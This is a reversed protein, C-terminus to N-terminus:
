SARAQPRGAGVDVEGGGQLVRVIGDRFDKRTWSQTIFHFALYRLKATMSNMLVAEQFTSQPLGVIGDTLSAIYHDLIIRTWGGGPDKGRSCRWSGLGSNKSCVQAFTNHAFVGETHVVRGRLQESENIFRMLAPSDSMVFLAWRGKRPWARTAEERWEALKPGLRGLVRIDPEEGHALSEALRGACTFARSIPGGVKTRLHFTALQTGCTKPENYYTDDTHDRAHKAGQVRHRACPEAVADTGAECEALMREMADVFDAATWGSVDPQFTPKVAHEWMTHDQGAFDVYRSRFHLTVVADFADLKALYPELYAQLVPTPRLWGMYACGYTGPAAERRHSDSCDDAPLHRRLASFMSSDLQEIRDILVFPHDRTAEATMWELTDHMCMEYHCKGGVGFLSPLTCGPHPKAVVAGVQAATYNCFHRRAITVGRSAMAREVRAKNAANWQWSVGSQAEYYEGLDFSCGASLGDGVEADDKDLACSSFLLFTARGLTTGFRLMDIWRPLSNGLGNWKTDRLDFVLVAPLEAYLRTINDFVAKRECGCRKEWLDKQRRVWRSGNFVVGAHAHLHEQSPRQRSIAADGAPRRDKPPLSPSTIVVQAKEPTSRFLVVVGVCLLVAVVLPSTYVWGM